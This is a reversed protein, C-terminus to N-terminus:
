FRYSHVKSGRDARCGAQPALRRKLPGRDNSPRIKVFVEERKWSDPMKVGCFPRTNIFLTFPSLVAVSCNKQESHQAICFSVTFLIHQM